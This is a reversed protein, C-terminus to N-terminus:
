YCYDNIYTYIHNISIYIYLYLKGYCHLSIGITDAEENGMKHIGIDDNIFGVQDINFQSHTLVELPLEEQIDIKSPNKYKTECLTGQVVKFFCQSQPHNHIPSNKMTNWCILMITFKDSCAILNRTYKVSPDEFAYRKWEKTSSDYSNM